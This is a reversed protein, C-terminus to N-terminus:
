LHNNERVDDSCTLSAPGVTRVTSLTRTRSLRFHQLPDFIFSKKKNAVEATWKGVSSFHILAMLSNLRTPRRLVSGRFQFDLLTHGGMEGM